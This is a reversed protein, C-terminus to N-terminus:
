LYSCSIRLVIGCHKSQRKRTGEEFAWQIAADKLNRGNFTRKGLANVLPAILDHRGAEFLNFVGMRVAWSQNEPDEIKDLVRFFKEPSGALERRYTTLFRLDDNYCKIGELVGDIIEEGKDFLAALVCRKAVTDVNQILWVAADAGKAIVCDLLDRRDRWSVYNEKLWGFNGGDLAKWFEMGLADDREADGESVASSM